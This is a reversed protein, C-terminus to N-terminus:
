EEKSKRKISLAGTGLVALLGLLASPEPVEYTGIQNIALDYGLNGNIVLKVYNIMSLDILGGALIDDFSFLVRTTEANGDFDFSKTVSSMNLGDSLMLTYSFPIGDSVQDIFIGRKNNAGSLRGDFNGQGMMGIDNYELTTQSSTRVRNAINLQGDFNGSGTFVGIESKFPPDLPSTQTVTSTIQRSGGIVENKDLGSFISSKTQGPSSLLIPNTGTNSPPFGPDPPPYSPVDFSDILFTGALAQTSGIALSSVTLSAAIVLHKTKM